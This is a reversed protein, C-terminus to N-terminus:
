KVYTFNANGAIITNLRTRTRQLQCQPKCELIHRCKNLQRGTNTLCSDSVLLFKVRVTGPPTEV